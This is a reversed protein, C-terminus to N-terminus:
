DLVRRWDVIWPAFYASKERRFRRTRRDSKRRLLLRDRRLRVRFPPGQRASASPSPPNSHCSAAASRRSSWGSRRCASPTGRRALAVLQLRGEDLQWRLFVLTVMRHNARPLSHATALPPARRNESASANGGVRRALRAAFPRFASLPAAAVPTGTSDCLSGRSRKLFFFRGSRAHDSFSGAVCRSRSGGRSRRSFATAPCAERRPCLARTRYVRSGCPLERSERAFSPLGLSRGHCVLGVPGRACRLGHTPLGDLSAGRPSRGGTWRLEDSRCGLPPPHFVLGAPSPFRGQLPFGDSRGPGAVLVSATPVVFGRATWRAAITGPPILRSATRRAAITRPVAFRCAARWTAIAGAPCAPQRDAARRDDKSCCVPLRLVVHRDGKAPCAPQRGAAITIRGQLLLGAPPGGRPSRGGVTWRFEESRGRLSPPFFVALRRGGIAVSAVRRERHYRQEVEHEGGGARDGHRWTDSDEGAYFSKTEVPTKPPLHTDWVTQHDSVLSPRREM